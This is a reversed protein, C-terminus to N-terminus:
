RQVTAYVPVIRDPKVQNDTVITLYGSLYRGDGGPTLSVKISATEGPKLINKSSTATIQPIGCKISTIRVTKKGNNEISLSAETRVGPKVTGFMLQKPSVTIEEIVIGKLTLTQVPKRPTNMYVFVEKAVPGSFDTSDFSAKIEGSKGPQIVKSSVNAVTCGCSSTVREVVAPADGTNRFVFTHNIVTGQSVKRFDHVPSEFTLRPESWASPTLFLLLTVTSLTAIITKM